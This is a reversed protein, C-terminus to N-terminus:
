FGRKKKTTTPSAQAKSDPAKRAQTLRGDDEYRLGQVKSQNGERRSMDGHPFIEKGGSARGEGANKRRKERTIRQLISRGGGEKEFTLQVGLSFLGAPGVAPGVVSNKEV